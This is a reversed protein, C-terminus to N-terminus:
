MYIDLSYTSELGDEVDAGGGRVLQQGRLRRLELEKMMRRDRSETARNSKWIVFAEALWLGEM